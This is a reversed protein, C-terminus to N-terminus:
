RTRSSEHHRMLNDQLDLWNLKRSYWSHARPEFAEPEDLVGVLLYIEGPLLEDEYSFCTGCSGYFSREIGPSSNYTLPKSGTIEVQDRGYGVLVTVPAGSWRRCDGCHCYVVSEPEGTSVLRIDGCLCGGKSGASNM